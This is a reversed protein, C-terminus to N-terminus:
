TGEHVEEDFKLPCWRGTLRRDTIYEGTRRCMDRSYTELLPCFACAIHDLEFYITVTAAAYETPM